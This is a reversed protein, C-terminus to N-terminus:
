VPHPKVHSVSLGSLCLSCWFYFLYFKAKETWNPLTLEPPACYLYRTSLPPKVSVPWYCMRFSCSSFQPCVLSGAPLCVHSLETWVTHKLWILCRSHCYICCFPSFETKLLKSKGRHFIACISQKQSSMREKLQYDSILAKLSIISSISSASLGNTEKCTIHM